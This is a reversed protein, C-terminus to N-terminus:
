RPQTRCPRRYERPSCGFAKRFVTAFYQSSSFGCEHSITTVSKEPSLLLTEAAAEIRLQNLHQMPTQNTIQRCYHVFRTVGLGCCEAMSELTWPDSVSGKLGDFFLETTRRASTLSKSLPVRHERFMDLLHLLLENIYVSLHSAGSDNRDDKVTRAIQRFCHQIAHTSQWVPQENERLFTTLSQLDKRTIVLWSPWTWEQHPQRVGVDLIVWNLRGPGINPNGVRHPQWPRTITLDGPQLTLLKGGLFFPTAGTELLTIEIGENRHWPLGWKQEHPADWYGVSRLGKLVRGPISRGPYTGRGLAQLTLDGSEAAEVLTDCSDAHYTKGAERYIPITGRKM